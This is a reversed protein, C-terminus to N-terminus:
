DNDNPNIILFIQINAPYTYGGKTRKDQWYQIYNNINEDFETKSTYTSQGDWNNTLPTGNDYVNFVFENDENRHISILATHGGNNFSVGYFKVGGQEKNYNDELYKGVSSSLTEATSNDKAENGNKDNFKFTKLGSAYGKQQLIM